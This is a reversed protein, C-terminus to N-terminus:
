NMVFEGSGAAGQDTSSIVAHKILLLSQETPSMTVTKPTSLWAEPNEPQQKQKINQRSRLGVIVSKNNPTCSCPSAAPCSALEIILPATTRRQRAVIVGVKNIIKRQGENNGVNTKVIGDCTLSIVTPEAAQALCTLLSLLTTIRIIYM